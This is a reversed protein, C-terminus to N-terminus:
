DAGKYSTLYFIGDRLSINKDALIDARKKNYNTEVLDEIVLYALSVSYKTTM